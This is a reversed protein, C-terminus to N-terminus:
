PTTDIVAAISRDYRRHRHMTATKAGDRAYEARRGAFSNYQFESRKTAAQPSSGHAGLQLVKQRADRCTQLAEQLKKEKLM